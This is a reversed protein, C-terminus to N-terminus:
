AFGKLLTDFFVIRKNKGIGTFYANGHSSRKSGDMVFIGDSKFGTRELLNDIKVKLEQNELPKFKNFLPAIFTPYLWLMLLSFGTLLLWVSLWWYEGMANMLYLIGYLLPAGIVLALMFGKIMDSVLTGVTTKNFGFKAELVFTRYLSFPLDILTGIVILSIIFGVGIYLTNSTLSHWIGDLYDLGGGLTWALLVGTSFLIELHNVKLKATTYDAAKQHQELTIKAAFENPVKDFSNLMSKAQRTNLWMMTVVYAFTTILFILTFLNFQM